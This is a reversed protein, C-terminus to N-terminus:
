DGKSLPTCVGGSKNDSSNIRRLGIIGMYGSLDNGDEMPIAVKVWDHDVQNIIEVTTGRTCEYTAQNQMSPRPRLYLMKTNVIYDEKGTMATSSTSTGPGSLVHSIVYASRLAIFLGIIAWISRSVSWTSRSPPPTPPPQRQPPPPQPQPPQVFRNTTAVGAHAQKAKIKNAADTRRCQLCPCGVFRVHSLDNPHNECPQLRHDELVKAFYEYWEGASVIHKGSAFCRCFLDQLEGPWCRHVSQPLPDIDTSLTPGYAYLRRAAKEDNTGVDEAIKLIGQFPHIGFNLVEFAMVSFAYDDQKEGLAAIDIHPGFVDPLIYGASIHTAPFVETAAEIRFSDCDIFAVRGTSEHVLINTPKLDVVAANKSHLDALAAACNRLIFIRKNLASSDSKMKKTLGFEVWHDLPRWLHKDFYPLSFGVPNGDREVLSIPWAIEYDRQPSRSAGLVTQSILYRIKKWNAAGPKNLIKVALPGHGPTDYSYVTSAGGRGAVTLRSLAVSIPTSTPTLSFTLIDSM